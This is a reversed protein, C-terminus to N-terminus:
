NTRTADLGSSLPLPVQPRRASFCARATVFGNDGASCCMGGGRKEAMAISDAHPSGAAQGLFRPVAAQLVARM